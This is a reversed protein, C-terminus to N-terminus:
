RVQQFFPIALAVLTQRIHKPRLLAAWQKLEVLVPHTNPYELQHLQQQFQTEALIGKWELQVHANNDPRRRLKALAALSKENRGRMVLWRPSFPFFHIGCGVVLAPLIQLLFPLRFSWDGPIGRPCTLYLVRDVVM